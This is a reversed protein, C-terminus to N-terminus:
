KGENEEVLKYRKGDIIMVMPTVNKASPQALYVPKTEAADPPIIVYLREGEEGYLKYVRYGELEKPLNFSNTEDKCEKECGAICFIVAAFMLLAIFTAMSKTNKMKARELFIEGM